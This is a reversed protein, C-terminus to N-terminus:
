ADGRLPEALSIAGPAIIAGAAPADATGARFVYLVAAMVVAVLLFALMVAAVIMATRGYWVFFKDLFKM